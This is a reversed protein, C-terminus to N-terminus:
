TNFILDVAAVRSLAAGCMEASGMSGHSPFHRPGRCKKATGPDATPLAFRIKPTNTKSACQRLQGLNATLTTEITALDPPLADSLM